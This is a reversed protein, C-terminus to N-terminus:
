YLCLRDNREDSVNLKRFTVISKNKAFVILPIYGTGPWAEEIEDAQQEASFHEWVIGNVDKESSMKEAEADEWGLHRLEGPKCSSDQRVSLNISERRWLAYQNPVVVCPECGLRQSYDKVTGEIDNTALAIHIKNM